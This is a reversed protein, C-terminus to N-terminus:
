NRVAPKREDFGAEELTEPDTATKFILIRDNVDFDDVMVKDAVDPSLMDLVKLETVCEERSFYTKIWGRAQETDMVCAQYINFPHPVLLLRVDMGFIICTQAGM